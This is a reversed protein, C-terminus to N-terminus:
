HCITRTFISYILLKHIEDFSFYVLEFGVTQTANALYVINNDDITVINSNCLLFAKRHFTQM